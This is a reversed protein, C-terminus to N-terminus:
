FRYNFYIGAQTCPTVDFSVEEPKTVQDPFPALHADVYADFMSLFITLATYWLNTNRSDRYDAYKKFYESKLTNDEAERWKDKWDSAKRGFDISKYIFYSEVAFVLGAKFYKRNSYQGWGPFAVSKLLAMTPSLHKASDVGRPIYAGILITDPGFRYLVPELIVSDALSTDAQIRTSDDFGVPLLTDSITDIDRKGTDAAEGPRVSDTQAITSGSPSFSILENTNNGAAGIGFCCFSVALLFTFKNKGPQM